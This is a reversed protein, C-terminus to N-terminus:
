APAVTITATGVVPDFEDGDVTVTLTGSRGIAAGPKTQFALAQMPYGSGLFKERIPDCTTITGSVHCNSAPKISGDSQAQPV